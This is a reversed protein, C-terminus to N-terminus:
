KCTWWINRRNGVKSFIFYIPIFWYPFAIFLTSLHLLLNFCFYWKKEITYLNPQKNIKKNLKLERLKAERYWTWHWKAKRTLYMHIALGWMKCVADKFIFLFSSFCNVSFLLMCVTFKWSVDVFQGCSKPM